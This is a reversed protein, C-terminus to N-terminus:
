NDSKIRKFTASGHVIRFAALRLLLFSRRFLLLQTTRNGGTAM